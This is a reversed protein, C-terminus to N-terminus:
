LPKIMNQDGNSSLRLGNISRLNDGLGWGAYGGCAMQAQVCYSHVLKHIVRAGVPRLGRRVLAQRLQHNKTCGVVLREAGCHM